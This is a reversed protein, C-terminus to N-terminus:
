AEVVEEGGIAAVRQQASNIKAKLENLEIITEVPVHKACARAYDSINRAGTLSSLKAVLSKGPNLKLMTKIDNDILAKKCVQLEASLFEKIKEESLHEEAFETQNKSEELLKEELEQENKIESLVKKQISVSLKITTRDFVRQASIKLINQEFEDRIVKEITEIILPTEILGITESVKKVIEPLCIYSEAEHFKLVVTTASSFNNLTEDSKYDRDIIGKISVSTAIAEWVGTRNSVAVVDSGGGMPVTEISSTGLIWRYFISDFSNPKGETILASNTSLIAPISGLLSRLDNPNIQGINKIESINENQNSLVFVKEVNSRMSFGVDHTTYIFISEPLDNEITEWVRSALSPNLNLEPEDVLILSNPDALIAIDALISLVQKEGDSLLTPSYPQSGNKSCLLKKTQSNLTLTIAPFIESFLNFLKNLPPEERVPAQGQQGKKQWEDVKDSHTDKIEQGKRDLLMLGDIVRDSLTTTRKNKHAIEAKELTKYTEFNNRNVELSDTLRITRGGEVYVITRGPYFQSARDRLEQLTKSKGTGNAGLLINVSKFTFPKDPHRNFTITTTM